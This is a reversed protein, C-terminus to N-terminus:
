SDTEVGDGAARRARRLRVEGHIGKFRKRGANSFRFGDGTAEAVEAAVLVTNPRAV